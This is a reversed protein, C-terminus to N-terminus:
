ALPWVAGKDVTFEYFNNFAAALPKKTIPRDLTYRPNRKVPRPYRPVGELPDPDAGCGLAPLLLAGAALALVERRNRYVPEPTAESEPLAWAPPIHVAAM